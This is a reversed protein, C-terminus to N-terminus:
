SIKYNYKKNKYENKKRLNNLSNNLKNFSDKKNVKIKYKKIKSEKHVKM